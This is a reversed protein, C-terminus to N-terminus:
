KQNLIRCYEVTWGNPGGKEAKMYEDLRVGVDTGDLCSGFISYGNLGPQFAKNNSSVIYARSQLSYPKAFSDETFVIHATLHESPNYKEHERFIQALVCYPIKYKESM